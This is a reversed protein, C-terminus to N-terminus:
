YLQERYRALMAPQSEPLGADAGVQDRLMEGMTPLVSRDVHRDADWLASRMLSKACHLYAAEVAVKIIAKPTKGRTEFLSCLNDDTRLEAIGNVRLTEDVGPVMFLVGVDGTEIINQLTDLRNNGPWDPILLTKDDPVQVFGPRDGRPSVDAKGSTGRSAITLFPSLAIFSRHHRDIYALEKKVAREMPQRYITRLEDISSIRAM